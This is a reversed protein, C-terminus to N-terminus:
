CMQQYIICCIDYFRPASGLITPLCMQHGVGCQEKVGTAVLEVKFFHVAQFMRVIGPVPSPTCPTQYQSQTIQWQLFESDFLRFEPRCLQCWM